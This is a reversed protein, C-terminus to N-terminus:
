GPRMRKAVVCLRGVRADFGMVGTPGFIEHDTELRWSLARPTSPTMSWFARPPSSKAIKGKFTLGEDGNPPELGNM